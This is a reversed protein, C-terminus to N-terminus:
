IWNVPHSPAGSAWDAVIKLNIGRAVANYLGVSVSGPAVDLQGAALPQVMRAGSDFLQLDAELGQEALYGRERMLIYPAASPIGPTGISTRTLQPAETPAAPPAPAALAATSARSVSATLGVSLLLALALSLLGYRRLTAM